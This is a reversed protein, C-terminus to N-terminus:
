IKVVDLRIGYGFYKYKDIDASKTLKIAGFLCNEFAFDFNNLNPTLEYVIFMSAVTGYNFTVKDQKLYNGNFEVRTKAGVYSLRPSLIKNNSTILPKIFEGSLGKSKWESIRKNITIGDFDSTITNKYAKFSKEM